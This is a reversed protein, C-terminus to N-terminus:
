PSMTGPPMTVPPTMGPTATPPVTAYVWRALVMYNPDLENQYVNRGLEDTGEHGTGGAEVALPKRLLLSLDPTKADIMSRAREYTQAVEPPTAADLPMTVAPFLRGRGPGFVQFFRETTGHCAHFGCDRLLVPYVEVDFLARDPAAIQLAGPDEGCAALALALLGAATSRRFGQRFAQRGTM